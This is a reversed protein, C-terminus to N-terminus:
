AVYPTQIELSLGPFVFDYAFNLYGGYCSDDDPLFVCVQTGDDWMEWDNEELGALLLFARIFDIREQNM